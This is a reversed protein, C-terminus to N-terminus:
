ETPLKQTGAQPTEQNHHVIFAKEYMKCLLHWALIAKGKRTTLQWLHEINLGMALSIPFTYIYSSSWPTSNLNDLYREEDKRQPTQGEIESCKCNSSVAFMQVNTNDPSQM